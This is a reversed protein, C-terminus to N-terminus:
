VIRNKLHIMQHTLHTQQNHNGVVKRVSDERSKKREKLAHVCMAYVRMMFERAGREADSQYFRFYADFVKVTCLANEDDSEVAPM